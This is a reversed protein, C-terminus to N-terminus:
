SLRVAELSERLLAENQGFLRSLERAISDPLDQQLLEDILRMNARADCVAGLDDQHANMSHAVNVADAGLVNEAREAVYRVRKTRKRVDHTQEADSLDLDALDAKVSEAMADFRAQIESKPLGHKVYRKKWTVGKCLLMARTFSNTLRRSTLAKLVKDRETSVEKKCLAILEDSSDPRSSVQDEFVDLERLRSTYGVVEKLSEKIEANQEKDQWPKIFSVLSRLARINTRFRHIAEVDNPDAIFAERREEIAEATQTLAAQLKVLTNWYRSRPGQVFWLLRAKGHTSSVDWGDTDPFDVELCGLGGTAFSPSAGALKKTVTEVFPVHGVAFVVEANSDHLETLFDGVNQRWLSEHQEIDRHFVAHRKTLAKQLLKATENTRRASSSWIAVADAGAKYLRLMHPLRADLAMVGAKSLPRDADQQGPEAHMAKGHRMVILTKKM